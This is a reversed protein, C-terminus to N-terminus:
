IIQMKKHTLSEEFVIFGLRQYLKEAPNGKVVKLWVRLNHEKARAIISRILNTGIGMNQYEKLIQIEALYIDTTSNVIKIFGILQQSVEIIQYEEPVFCDQFLRDNWSYIKEVYGKMNSRHIRDLIEIDEISAQRLDYQM